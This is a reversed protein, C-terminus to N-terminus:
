FEVAAVYVFAKRGARTVRKRDTRVIQGKKALVSVRASGNQHTLGLAVLCEDATAGWLGQARIFDLVQEEYSPALKRMGQAAEKSTESARAYPVDTM